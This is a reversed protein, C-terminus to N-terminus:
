SNVWTRIGILINEMNNFSKYIKLMVSKKNDFGNVTTSLSQSYNMVGGIAFIPQSVKTDFGVNPLLVLM